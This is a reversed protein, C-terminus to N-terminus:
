VGHHIIHLKHPDVGYSGALIELGTQSLVVVADARECIRRAVSRHHDSPEPLITHLTVVVPKQVDELFDLVWAGDEGGFLGYEHQVNLLHSPHANVAAAAAKYSAHEDQSLRAVVKGKYSRTEGGPEDIALVDSDYGFQRDFSDVVDKTFTAIGCERPPFSGMFLTQPPLPEASARYQM